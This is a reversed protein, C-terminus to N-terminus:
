VPRGATLVETKATQTYLALRPAGDVLRYVSTMWAAFPDEGERLARAEYVLAAADGGLPVIREGTISFDDWAPAGRLSREVGARDLVTGGALIMLGDDTMLRGYYEAGRAECLARWGACEIRRLETLDLPGGV